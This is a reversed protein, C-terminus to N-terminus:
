GEVLEHNPLGVMPHLDPLAAVSLAQSMRYKKICTM